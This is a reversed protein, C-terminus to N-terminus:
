PLLMTRRTQNFIPLVILNPVKLIILNSKLCFTYRIVMTSINSPLESRTACMHLLNPIEIQQLCKIVDFSDGYGINKKRFTGIKSWLHAVLESSGHYMYTGHNNCSLCICNFRHILIPLETRASSSIVCQMGRVVAQMFPNRLKGNLIGHIEARKLRAINNSSCISNWISLLNFIKILIQTLLDILWLYLVYIIRNVILPLTWWNM